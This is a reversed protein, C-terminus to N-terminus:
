QGKPTFLKDVRKTVADNRRMDANLEKQWICDFDNPAAHESIFVMNSKALHRVHNWFANIDFQGTTFKTTNAYPPDCYIVKDTVDIDFFSQHLFVTDGRWLFKKHLGKAAQLTYDDGMLELKLWDTEFVERAMEATTLVEQVSHCGATNPLVPVKLDKLLNWFEPSAKAHATQRRLSATLMAPQASRVADALVQPSPYRSTGLLLRSAFTEGYLVLPDELHNM